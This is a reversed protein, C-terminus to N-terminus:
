PEEQLPKESKLVLDGPGGSDPNEPPKVPDFEAAPNPMFFAFSALGALSALIFWFLTGALSGNIWKISGVIVCIFMLGLTACGM